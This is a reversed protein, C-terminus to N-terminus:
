RKDISTIETAEDTMRFEFEVADGVAVQELIQQDADFPMTMAPLDLAPVPEHNITITGSEQDIATVTGRSSAMRMEADAGAAPTGGDMPTTEAAPMDEGDAAEEGGGCASLALPVALMTMLTAARM